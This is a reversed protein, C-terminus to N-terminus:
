CWVAPRQLNLSFLEGIDAFCRLSANESTWIGRDQMFSSQPPLWPTDKLTLERLLPHHPTVLFRYAIVALACWQSSDAV